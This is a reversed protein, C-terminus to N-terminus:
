AAPAQALGRQWLPPPRRAAGGEGAMGARGHRPTHNSVEPVMPGPLCLTQCKRQNTSLECDLVNQQIDRGGDRGAGAETMPPLKSIEALASLM